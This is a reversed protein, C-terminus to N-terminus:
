MKSNSPPLMTAGVIGSSMQSYARLSLQMEELNVLEQNIKATLYNHIATQVPQQKDEDRFNFHKAIVDVACTRMKSLSDIELMKADVRKKINSIAHELQQKSLQPSM